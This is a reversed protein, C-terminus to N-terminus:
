FTIGRSRAGGEGGEVENENKCREETESRRSDNVERREGRRMEGGGDKMVAQIRINGQPERGAQRIGLSRNSDAHGM